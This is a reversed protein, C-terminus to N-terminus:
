TLSTANRREAEQFSPYRHGCALVHFYYVRPNAHSPWSLAVVGHTVTCLRTKQVYVQRTLQHRQGLRAPRKRDFTMVVHLGGSGKWILQEEEGPEM